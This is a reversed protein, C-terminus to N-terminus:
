LNPILRGQSDLQPRPSNQDEVFQEASFPPVTFLLLEDFNGEGM